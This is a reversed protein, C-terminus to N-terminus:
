SFKLERILIIKEDDGKFEDHSKYVDGFRKKGQGFWVILYTNYNNKLYDSQKFDNIEKETMLIDWLEFKKLIQWHQVKCRNTHYVKDKRTAIFKKHCFKCTRKYNM